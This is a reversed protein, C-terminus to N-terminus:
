LIVAGICTNTLNMYSAFSAAGPPKAPPSCQQAQSMPGSGACLGTQESEDCDSGYDEENFESYLSDSRARVKVDHYVMEQHSNDDTALLFGFLKNFM